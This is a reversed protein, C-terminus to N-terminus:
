PLRAERVRASSRAGTGASDGVSFSEYRKPSRMVRFLFEPRTPGADEDSGFTPTGGHGPSDRRM